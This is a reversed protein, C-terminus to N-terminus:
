KGPIKDDIGKVYFDMGRVQGDDLHDGGKCEVEKGDQDVVPCAFPKISGDVIGAETDAALTKVDDPMNTFPAMVIMKDKLGEWTDNSQWTNDLM